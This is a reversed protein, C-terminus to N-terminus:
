KSITKIWITQQELRVLRAEHDDVSDNVSTFIAGIAAFGDNMDTGLVDIKNGLERKLGDKVNAASQSIEASIYQKLDDIQADNMDVIRGGRCPCAM